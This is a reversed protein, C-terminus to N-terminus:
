KLHPRINEWDQLNHEQEYYLPWNVHTDFEVNNVLDWSGDDLNALYRIFSSISYYEDVINDAQPFMTTLPGTAIAKLTVLIESGVIQVKHLKWPSKKKFGHSEKGFVKKLYRPLDSKYVKVVQENVEKQASAPMAWNEYTTPRVQFSLTRKKNDIKLSSEIQPYPVDFRLDVRGIRKNSKYTGMYTPVTGNDKKWSHRGNKDVAVVWMNGDKGKMVDGPKKLHSCLGLGKPSPEKGTYRCKDNNKAQPM